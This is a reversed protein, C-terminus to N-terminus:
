NTEKRTKEGGREKMNKFELAQRPNGAELSSSM